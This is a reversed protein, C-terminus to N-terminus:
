FDNCGLFPGRDMIGRMAVTQDGYKRRKQDVRQGKFFGHNDHIEASLGFAFCLGHKGHVNRDDGIVAM